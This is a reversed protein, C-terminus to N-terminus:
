FTGAAMVGYGGNMYAPTISVPIRKATERNPNRTATTAVRTEMFLFSGVIELAGIGQFIGDTVLLAKNVSENGCSQCAERHGLDLWPGAVPIYLYNDDSRSNTSAVILAPM